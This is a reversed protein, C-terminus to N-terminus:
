ARSKRPQRNLAEFGEERYNSKALATEDAFRHLFQVTNAARVATAYHQDTEWHSGSM